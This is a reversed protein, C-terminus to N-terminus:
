LGDAAASVAVAGSAGDHPHRRLRGAVHL